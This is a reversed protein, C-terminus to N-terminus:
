RAPRPERSRLRPVFDHLVDSADPMDRLTIM